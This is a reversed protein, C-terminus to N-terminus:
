LRSITIGAQVTITMDRAPYDIVQDLGRLDVGIGERMPPWGYEWMTMGGFPYVAQGQTLAQRVSGALEAITKPQVSSPVCPDGLSGIQSQWNAVSNALTPLSLKMRLGRDCQRNRGSFFHTQWNAVNKSGPPGGSLSAKKDREHKQTQPPCRNRGPVPMGARKM